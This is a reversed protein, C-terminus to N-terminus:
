HVCRDSIQAVDHCFREIPLHLIRMGLVSQVNTLSLTVVTSTVLVTTICTSVMSKYTKMNENMCKKLFIKKASYKHIIKLLAVM